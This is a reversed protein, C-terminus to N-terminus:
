TIGLERGPEQCAMYSVYFFLTRHDHLCVCFNRWALSTGLPRSPKALLSGKESMGGQLFDEIDTGDQSTSYPKICRNETMFIFQKSSHVTEGNLDVM